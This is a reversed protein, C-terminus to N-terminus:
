RRPRGACGPVGGCPRGRGGPRRGDSSRRVRDPATRVGFPRCAPRVPRHQPGLWPRSRARGAGGARVAPPLARGPALGRHRDRGPALGGRRARARSGPQRGGFPRRRARRAAARRRVPDRDRRVPARHQRRGARPRGGDRAGRRRDADAGARCGRPVPPRRCQDEARARVRADDRHREPSGRRCGADARAPRPPRGRRDGAPRSAGAHPEGGRAAGPRRGDRAGRHRARARARRPRARRGDVAGAGAQVCSRDRVPRRSLRGGGSARDPLPAAGARPPPPGHRGVEMGLELALEVEATATIGCDVTILLAAGARHLEEVRDRTLGYGEDRSPLRPRVTAGLSRLASTLLATSCVGDVDYDGHVAVM